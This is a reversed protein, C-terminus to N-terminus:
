QQPTSYYRDIAAEADTGLTGGGDSFAQLYFARDCHSAQLGWHGHITRNPCLPAQASLTLVLGLVVGLWRM